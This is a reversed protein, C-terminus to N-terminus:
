LIGDGCHGCWGCDKDCISYDEDDVPWSREGQRYRRAGSEQFGSFLHDPPYPLGLIQQPAAAQKKKSTTRKAPTTQRSKGKTAHKGLGPKTLTATTPQPTEGETASSQPTKNPMARAIHPEGGLNQEKQDEQMMCKWKSYAVAASLTPTIKKSSGQGVQNMGGITLDLKSFPRELEASVHATTKATGVAAFALAPQSQSPPDPRPAATKKSAQTAAIAPTKARADGPHDRRGSKAPKAWPSLTKNRDHPEYSAEKSAVIRKRAEDQVKRMWNPKIKETYITWLVPLYVVDQTCYDIIEQLMPRSNFVEYSGGHEPAFLLLGKQKTSKWVASAEPTLKADSEICKSLGSVRDKSFPRTAVELLQVDHVGQLSIQFHAFLADSDNRVDFFVKPVRASQLISRLDIGSRNSTCFAAEKLVHIDILFIRKQPLVFIQIISISGHRSLKVGEIDLYLSPPETPLRDFSDILAIVAPASDVITVEM